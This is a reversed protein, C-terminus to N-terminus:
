CTLIILHHVLKCGLDLFALVVECHQCAVVSKIREIQCILLNSNSIRKQEYTAHHM